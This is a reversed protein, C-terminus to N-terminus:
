DLAENVVIDNKVIAVAAIDGIPETPKYILSEIHECVLAWNKDLDVLTHPKPLHIARLIDDRRVSSELICEVLKFIMYRYSISGRMGLNERTEMILTFLDIIRRHEVDTLKPPREGTLEYIFYNVCPRFRNYNNRRLWRVIEISEFTSLDTRMKEVVLEPINVVSYGQANEIHNKMQIVRQDSKNYIPAGITYVEDHEYTHLMKTRGCNSCSDECVRPTECTCLKIPTGVPLSIPRIIKTRMAVNSIYRLVGCISLFCLYGEYDGSLRYVAAGSFYRGIMKLNFLLIPDDSTRSYHVVTAHALVIRSHLTEIQPSVM